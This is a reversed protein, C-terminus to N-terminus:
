YGPPHPMPPTPPSPPNAIGFRGFPGSKAVFHALFPIKTPPNLPHPEFLGLKPTWGWPPWEFTLPWPTDPEDGPPAVQAM